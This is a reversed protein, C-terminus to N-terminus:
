FQNPVSFRCSPWLLVPPPCYSCFKFVCIGTLFNAFCWFGSLATVLSRPPCSTITAQPYSCFVTMLLSVGPSQPLELLHPPLGEHQLLTQRNPGWNWLFPVPGRSEGVCGGAGSLGAASGCGQGQCSLFILNLEIDSEGVLWENKYPLLLSIGLIFDEFNENKITFIIMQQLRLDFLKLKVIM